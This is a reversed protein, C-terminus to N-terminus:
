GIDSSEGSVEMWSTDMGTGAAAAGEDSDVSVVPVLAATAAATAVIGLAALDTAVWFGVFGLGVGGAIVFLLGTVLCVGDRGGASVPSLRMLDIDGEAAGTGSSFDARVALAAAAEGDAGVTLAGTM